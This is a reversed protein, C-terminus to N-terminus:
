DMVLLQILLVIGFVLKKDTKHYSNVGMDIAAHIADISAAEDTGNWLWGSIGWTGIGIVSASICSHGLPKYRM